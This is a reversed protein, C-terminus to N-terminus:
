DNTDLLVLAISVEKIRAEDNEAKALELQRTLAQRKKQKEEKEKREKQVKWADYQGRILDALFNFFPVALAQLIKQWM